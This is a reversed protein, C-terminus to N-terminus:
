VTVEQLKGIFITRSPIYTERYMEFDKQKCILKLMDETLINAFRQYEKDITIM